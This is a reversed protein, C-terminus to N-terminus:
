SLILCSLSNEPFFYWVTLRQGVCFRFLNLPSIDFHFTTKWTSKVPTEHIFLFSVVTQLVWAETGVMENKHRLKLIVLIWDLRLPNTSDNPHKCMKCGVHAREMDEMWQPIRTNRECWDSWVDVGMGAQTETTRHAGFRDRCYQCICWLGEQTRSSTAAPRQLNKLTYTRGIECIYGITKDLKLSCCPESFINQTPSTPVPTIQTFMSCVKM